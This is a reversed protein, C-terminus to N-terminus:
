GALATVTIAAAYCTLVAAFGVVVIRPLNVPVGYWNDRLIAIQFTQM